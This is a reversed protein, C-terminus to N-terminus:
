CRIVCLTRLGPPDRDRRIFIRHQGVPLLTRLTRVGRRALLLAIGLLLGALVALCLGLFETGSEGDPEQPGMRAQHDAVSQEASTRLGGALAAEGHIGTHGSGIMAHTGQPTVGMLHAGVHSGWGHVSMLGFLALAVAALALRAGPASTSARLERM